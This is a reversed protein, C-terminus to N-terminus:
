TFHKVYWTVYDQKDNIHVHLEGVFMYEYYHKDM